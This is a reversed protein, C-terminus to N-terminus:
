PDGPYTTPTPTPAHGTTNHINLFNQSTVCGETWDGPSVIGAPVTKCDYGPSTRARDWDQQYPKAPSSSGCGALGLSLGMFAVLVLFTFRM